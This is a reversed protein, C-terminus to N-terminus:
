CARGPWVALHLLLVLKFPHWECRTADDCKVGRTRWTEVLYQALDVGSGTQGQELLRRAGEWLLESAEQAKSDFPLYGDATPTPAPGRRPPALLRTATTRVKQHASYADGAELFQVFQTLAASM